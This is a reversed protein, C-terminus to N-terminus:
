DEIIVVPPALPPLNDFVHSQAASSRAMANAGVNKALDYQVFTERDYQWSDGYALKHIRYYIAERSPANFGGTNHRMLSENTPRYAGKAYTCAGEYVGLNESAYRSDNLFASWKVSSPDSTFDINKWWGHKFKAQYNSIQAETITQSYNYEDALKAFGHGGAEHCILTRFMEEDTGLPFYAISLGEGYDTVSLSSSFYMYCTGAYYNRNMAVLILTNNLNGSTVARSAYNRVVGDNGGVQTGSGFFSQLRRGEHEYGETASVVAVSYVNFYDKYSKYPEESFLSNMMKVMTQSYTGSEIDRDSFADGMLVIDIGKGVSATQLVTVEGDRSYDKSMYYDPEQRGVYEYAVIKSSMDQWDSGLYLSVENTGVLIKLTSSAGKFIEPSSVGLVGSLDDYSPPIMPMCFLSDLSSCNKFARMGIRTVKEPIVAKKLSSCDLFMERPIETIDDSLDVQELSTCGYFIGNGLEKVMPMSVAKLSTCQFFAQNGVSEISSNFVVRELQDDMSFVGSGVKTIGEPLVYSFAGLGGAAFGLLTGDKVLSRGDSLVFPGSLCELAPCSQIFADGISTVSDPIHLKKLSTCRYFASEGIETVTDPLTIEEISSCGAFAYGDIASASGLEVRRLETCEQFTAYGLTGRFSSSFVIEKIASSDFVGFALSQITSPLYVHELSSCFHFVYDPLSSIQTRSIDVAKLKKCFEFCSNGITTVSPPISISELNDCYYFARSNIATIGSPLSVSDLTSCKYFARSGVATIAASFRLIGKGDSYTNSVIDAGFGTQSYLTVAAGDTTHYWIENAPPVDEGGPNEVIVEIAAMRSVSNRTITVPKTTQKTFVGGQPDTVTVTFGKTFTVPPVVLWFETYNDSSTGITVATQCNLKISDLAGAATEVSPTAGLIASVTAAGSIKEGSNGRLVLSSVSVDNGYLKLVLYGCLNKFLLENDETVSVMTNAGRGFSDERYVQTVPLSISIAGDDDIRNAENYPYVAYVYDLANGTMFDESEVKRFVGANDGTAGAFYYERNFTYKNFISVRDDADWRVRLKEDAFVRTSADELTAYFEQSDDQVVKEEPENIACSVGMAAIAAIIMLRKGTM